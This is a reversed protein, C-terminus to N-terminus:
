SLKTTVAKVNRIDLLGPFHMKMAGVIMKNFDSPRAEIVYVKKLSLPM